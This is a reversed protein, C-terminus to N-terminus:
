KKIKLLKKIESMPKYDDLLTFDLKPQNLLFTTYVLDDFCVARDLLKHDKFDSPLNVLSEDYFSLLKLMEVRLAIM